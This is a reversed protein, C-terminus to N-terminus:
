TGLGRWIPDYGKYAGMYPSPHPSAMAEVHWRTGGGWVMYSGICPSSTHCWMSQLGGLAGHKSGVRPGCGRLVHPRVLPKSTRLGGGSPTLGLGGCPRPGGSTGLPAPRGPM